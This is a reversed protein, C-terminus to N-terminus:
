VTRILAFLAAALALGAGLAIVLYRVVFHHMQPDRELPLRGALLAATILGSPGRWGRPPRELVHVVAPALRGALADLEERFAV